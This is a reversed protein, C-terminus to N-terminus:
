IKYRQLTGDSHIQEMHLVRYLNLTAVNNSDLKDHLLRVLIFIFYNNLVVDKVYFLVVIIISNYQKYRMRHRRGSSM